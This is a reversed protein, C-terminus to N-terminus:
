PLLVSARKDVFLLVLRPQETRNVEVIIDEEWVVELVIISSTLTMQHTAIIMKMQSLPSSFLSSPFPLTLPPSLSPTLFISPSLIHSQPRSSLLHLSLVCVYIGKSQQTSHATADTNTGSSRKRRSHRFGRVSDEDSSSTTDKTTRIPIFYSYNMRGTQFALLNEISDGIEVSELSHPSSEGGGDYAFSPNRSPLTSPPFTSITSSTSIMSPTRSLDTLTSPPLKSSPGAHSATTMSPQTVPAGSTIAQDTTNPGAVSSTSTAPNPQVTSSPMKTTEGVSGSIALTKVAGSGKGSSTSSSTNSTNTTSKEKGSFIRLWSSGSPRSLGGPMKKNSSTNTVIPQPHPASPTETTESTKGSPKNRAVEHKHRSKTGPLGIPLSSTLGTRLSQHESQGEGVGASGVGRDGERTDGSTGSEANRQVGGSKVRRMRTSKDGEGGGAIEDGAGSESENILKTIGEMVEHATEKIREPSQVRHLGMAPNSGASGPRNLQQKATLPKPKVINVVHQQVPKSGGSVSPLTATSGTDKQPIYIMNSGTSATRRHRRIKKIQQHKALKDIKAEEHGRALHRDVFRSSEDDTVVAPGLSLTNHHTGSHEENLNVIESGDLSGGKSGPIQITFETQLLFLM